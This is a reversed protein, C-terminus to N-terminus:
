SQKAGTLEGGSFHKPQRSAGGGVRSSGGSMRHGDANPHVPDAFLVAHQSRWREAENVDLFAVGHEAAAVKSRRRLEAFRRSFEAPSYRYHREWVSLIDNEYQSRDAKAGLEPQIM